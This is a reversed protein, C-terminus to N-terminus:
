VRHLAGCRSRLDWHECGGSRATVREESPKANRKVTLNKELPAHVGPLKRYPRFDDNM